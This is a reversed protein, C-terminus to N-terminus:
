PTYLNGTVLTANLAATADASVQITAGQGLRKMAILVSDFPPVSAKYADAYTESATSGSPVGYVNVLRTAATYNTIKIVADRLIMGSTSPVTYLTRVTAIVDITAETPYAVTM